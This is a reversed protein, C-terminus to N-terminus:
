RVPAALLVYGGSRQLPLWGRQEQLAATLPAEAPLLARTAGTRDVFAEWGPQARVASAYGAVYAADYVEIRTDIVLHLQPEAFVLRSSLDYWDFLVTGSPMADLRPEFAAGPIRDLHSVPVCLAAALVLAIGAGVALHRGERLNTTTSTTSTTSVPRRRMTQLGEAVLPVLLCAAIPIMRNYSIAFALALACHAVKWWSPASGRRLWGLVLLVGAGVVILAIPNTLDVFTWEAVLGSAASRITLPLVLLRLGVPTLGAVIVSAVVVGIFRVGTRRDMRRDGLLGLFTALGIVPGISWSGHTSAWVWSLPVLWWSPRLDAAARRWLIVAVMTFVAGAALPREGLAPATSLGFFTAMVALVLDAERRASALFLATLVIVSVARLFVVAGPGVLDYGISAVVDGVWETLVFDRTSFTSFPDPGAFQWTQRLWQGARLNWWTDPDTIPRVAITIVGILVPIGVLWIQARSPAAAPSLGTSTTLTAGPSEEDDREEDAVGPPPNLTTSM